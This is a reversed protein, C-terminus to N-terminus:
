PARPASRPAPAACSARPTGALPGGIDCAIHSKAGRQKLGLTHNAVVEGCARICRACLICRNHDMLLYKHSADVPSGSPTPRILGTTLATVTDWPRCARLEGSAECFPCFHNRESFLLDLVLKRAGVVRPSETLVEMGGTIPFTCATQLVRQGKVEVVCIRCAGVPRLAPHDCLTPINIGVQKAAQLITSGVPASIAQGNITLNVAEM